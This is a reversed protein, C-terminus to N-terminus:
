HVYAIATDLADRIQDFLPRFCEFDVKEYPDAGSTVASAFDTKTLGVPTKDRIRTVQEAVLGTKRVNPINFEGSEDLGTRNDFEERLFLRRGEADTLRLVDKPYTMEVCVDEELERHGPVPLAMLVVGNGLHEWTRDHKALGKGIPTDQDVIGVHPIKHPGVKSIEECHTKVARDNGCASHIEIQMQVDLFDGNEHFYNEAAQFHLLDNEGESLITFQRPVNRDIAGADVMKMKFDVQKELRKALKLYVRDNLGRVAGIHAIHGRVVDVFGKTHKPPQNLRPNSRYFAAEAEDRGYREWIHLATNIRRIHERRINTKENVVLGTVLQRRTDRICSTKEPHVHFGHSRVIEDLRMGCSMEGKGGAVAIDSPVDILNTSFCLDDAYRTYYCRLDAALRALDSDLGRCIFNSIIPSTPAGQPLGNRHCCLQALLTAVEPPYFFPSKRFLGRVRGFGISPFFEQLDVRVTWTQRRHQTANSITSRGAIFGHVHLPGNYADLLVTAFQRQMQKLPLVPTEILRAGGNRKAIEFSKYRRNARIGWIWWTLKAPELGFFQAVSEITEFKPPASATHSRM